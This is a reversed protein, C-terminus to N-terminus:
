GTATDFRPVRQGLRAAVAERQNASGILRQQEQSERLLLDREFAPALLRKAARLADPNLHLFGEAMERAHALPDSCVRTALGVRVAEDADLTRGTFVLERFIDDRLLSRGLWMGAMDPVLGWQIEMLALKADPAVLRLDAGMAIQLGSGLAVGHIACIVPVPIERWAMAAQQPVNASGHTREQLPVGAVTLAKGWQMAHLSSLDLGACFAAGEGHLVVARLGHDDRLQAAAEVLGVLMAEDLANRQDPRSLRVEAIGCPSRLLAIRGRILTEAM